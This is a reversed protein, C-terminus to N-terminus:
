SPKLRLFIVNPQLRRTCRHLRIGTRDLEDLEPPLPADVPQQAMATGDALWRASARGFRAGSLRSVVARGACTPVLRRRGGDLLLPYEEEAM